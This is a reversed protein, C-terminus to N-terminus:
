ANHITPSYSEILLERGQADRYVVAEIVELSATVDGIRDPFRRQCCADPDFPAAPAPKEDAKVPPKPVPTPKTDDPM